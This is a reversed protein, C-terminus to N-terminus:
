RNRTKAYFIIAIEGSQNSLYLPSFVLFFYEGASMRIEVILYLYFSVILLISFRKITKEITAQQIRM